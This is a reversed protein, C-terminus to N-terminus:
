VYYKETWSPLGIEGEMYGNFHGAESCKLWMQIARVADQKGREILEDNAKYVVCAYPPEKEIVIWFFSHDICREKEALACYFGAQMYYGFNWSAKAFADPSADTTTKLDVIYDEGLWDFRGKLSYEGKEVISVVEFPNDVLPGATDRIVQGMMVLREDDEATLATKGENAECFRAWEEKGAKTRRDVVPARCTTQSYSEMDQAALHTLTGIRMAETQEKPNLKEHWAHLPSKKIVTKLLSYNLGPHARYESEPMDYVLM